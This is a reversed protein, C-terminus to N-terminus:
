ALRWLFVLGACAIAVGASRVGIKGAPWRTALGLAIGMLHLLGTAVVFGVSYAVADTGAPLEAGHAYGHFIAFTGVVVVALRQPPAAALAVM